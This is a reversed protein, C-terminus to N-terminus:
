AWGTKNLHLLCFSRQKPRRAIYVLFVFEPLGVFAGILCIRESLHAGSCFWEPCFRKSMHTLQTQSITEGINLKELCNFIKENIFFWYAM